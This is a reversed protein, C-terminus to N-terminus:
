RIQGFFHDIDYSLFQSVVITTNFPNVNTDGTPDMTEVFYIRKGTLPHVGV